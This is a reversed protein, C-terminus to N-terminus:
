AQKNSLGTAEIVTSTVHQDVRHRLDKGLGWVGFGVGWVGFGL